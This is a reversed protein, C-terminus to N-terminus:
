GGLFARYQTAMFADRSAKEANTQALTTLWNDQDPPTMYAGAGDQIDAPNSVFYDNGFRAGDRIVPEIGYAYQMTGHGTQGALERSAATGSSAIQDDIVRNHNVTALAAWFPPTKETDRTDSGVMRQTLGSLEGSEDSDFENFEPAHTQESTANDHRVPEVTSRVVSEDQPVASAASLFWASTM